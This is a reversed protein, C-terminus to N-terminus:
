GFPVTINTAPFYQDESFQYLQQLIAALQQSDALLQATYNTFQDDTLNLKSNHAILLNMLAIEASALEM